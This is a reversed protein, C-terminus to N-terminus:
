NTNYTPAVGKVNSLDGVSARDVLAIVLRQDAPLDEVGDLQHQGSVGVAFVGEFVGM